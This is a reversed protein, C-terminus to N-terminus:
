DNSLVQIIGSIAYTRHDEKDLDWVDFLWQEEPHYDTKGWYMNGVPQVKRISTKGKWNKYLLTLVKNNDVKM